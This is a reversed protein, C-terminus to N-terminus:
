HKGLRRESYYMTMANHECWLDLCAGKRFCGVTDSCVLESEGGEVPGRTTLEWGSCSNSGRVVFGAVQCGEM